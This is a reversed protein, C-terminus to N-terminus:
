GRYEAYQNPNEWIRVAAVNNKLNADNMKQLSDFLEKALTEATPNRAEFSYFKSKTLQRLLALMEVDNTNVLFAHDWNAGVWEQVARKMEEFDVVMGSSSSQPGKLFVEATFNHGHPFECVVDTGWLRHGACFDCTIRLTYEPVKIDGKAAKNEHRDHISPTEM